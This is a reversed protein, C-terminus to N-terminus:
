WFFNSAFIHRLYASKVSKSMNTLSTKSLVKKSINKKVKEVSKLDAHFEANKPAIKSKKCFFKKFIM